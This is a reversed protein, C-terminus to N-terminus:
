KSETFEGNARIKVEDSLMPAPFKSGFNFDSRKITGTLQFGATPAKSMPNEVTGRYWLDVTVPKTVGNFTLNGSLKYKGAGAKKISTSKFTLASNKDVDFFDASRLHEDRKEIGTNISATQATLDFIADSFDAKSATVTVDFEKFSGDVDAIGLHTISFTLNSHAPDVKWTTQAFSYATFFVSLMAVLAMKSLIKKM